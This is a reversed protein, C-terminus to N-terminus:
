NIMVLDDYVLGTGLVRDLCPEILLGGIVSRESDISDFTEKLERYIKKKKTKM